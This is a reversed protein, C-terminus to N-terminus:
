QSVRCHTEVTGVQNVDTRFDIEWCDPGSASPAYVIANLAGQNTRFTLTRVDGDVTFSILEESDTGFNGLDRMQRPEIQLSLDIAEHYCGVVYPPTNTTYYIYSGDAQQFGNCETLEGEPLNNISNYRGEGYYDTAGTGYFIEAGGLTYAIPESLDHDDLLCVPATHYHYDEGQGAHGGCHDLEGQVVTDYRAEYVYNAGLDADPRKDFHYIAVGNVGFAVPGRAHVEGHEDLWQPNRPITWATDGVYSFPLPVRLIWSTIGRMIDHDPLGTDTEIYAYTDDCYVRVHDAYDAFASDPDCVGGAVATETATDATAPEVATEIETEIPASDDQDREFIVDFHSEALTIDTIAALMTDRDTNAPDPLNPTASLAYVTFTYLKEGPGQSCPPAYEQAGNVSNTGLTGFNAAGETLSTTSTPINFAVWYWHSDGPGPEHHMALAYGATGEPAGFWELPPSLSEGDCSFRTPLRTGQGMVSSSLTFDSTAPNSETASNTDDVIVATRNDTATEAENTTTDQQAAPDGEEGRRPPPPGASNCAILLLPLLVLIFRYQKKM